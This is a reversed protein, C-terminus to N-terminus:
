SCRGPWGASRHSCLLLRARRLVGYPSEDDLNETWGAEDSRIRLAEVWRVVSGSWGPVDGPGWRSESSGANWRVVAGDVPESGSTRASQLAGALSASRLAATPRIPEHGGTRRLWQGYSSETWSGGRASCAGLGDAEGGAHTTRRFSLPFPSRCRGNSVGRRQVPMQAPLAQSQAGIGVRASGPEPRVATRNSDRRAAGARCVHVDDSV